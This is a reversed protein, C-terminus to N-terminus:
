MGIKKWSVSPAPDGRASCIISLKTGVQMTVSGRPQLDITPVEQVVLTAVAETSGAENLARCKYQGAEQETVRNIRLM